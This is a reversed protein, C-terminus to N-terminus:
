LMCSTWIGFGNLLHESFKVCCTAFMSPQFRHGGSQYDVACVLPTRGRIPDVLVQLDDTKQSSSLRFGWIACQHNQDMGHRGIISLLAIVNLLLARISDFHSYQHTCANQVANGLFGCQSPM